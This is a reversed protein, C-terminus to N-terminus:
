VVMPLPLQGGAPTASDAIAIQVAWVGVAAMTSISVIPGFEGAWHIGALELAVANIEINPRGAADWRDALGPPMAAEIERSVAVAWHERRAIWRVVTEVDAVDPSDIHCRRCLMAYNEAVNPGGFQHGMLHARELRSKQWRKNLVADPTPGNLEEDWPAIRDWESSFYGCAFCAPEGWDIAKMGHTRWWKAEFARVIDIHKPVKTPRPNVPNKGM